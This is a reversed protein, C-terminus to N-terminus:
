ELQDDKGPCLSVFYKASRHFISRLNYLLYNSFRKYLFSLTVNEKFCFMVQMIINSIINVNNSMEILWAFLVLPFM